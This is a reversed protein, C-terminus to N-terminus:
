FYARHEESALGYFVQTTGMSHGIWSVQAKGTQDLVLNLQSKADYQTMEQWSFDFFQRRVDKDWSDPDLSTHKRSFRTGRSNGLWVDFGERAFVFAPAEDPHNMVWCDASDVIGHQLFVVPAGEKTEKAKVRFVELIYGDETVVSHSTFDFGNENVIDEFELRFDHDTLHGRDVAHSDSTAGNNPKLFPFWGFLTDLMTHPPTPEDNSFEDHAMAATLM